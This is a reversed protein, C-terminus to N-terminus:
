PACGPLRAESCVGSFRQDCAACIAERLGAAEGPPLPLADVQSLMASWWMDWTFRLRGAAVSELHIRDGLPALARNVLPMIQVRARETDLDVAEWLSRALITGLCYYNFDPEAFDPRTTGCHRQLRASGGADRLDEQTTESAFDGELDRFAAHSEYAGVLSLSMFAPDRTFALASLDALGEDLAKLRKGDLSLLEDDAVWARWTAFAAGSFVRHFFVRHHFEHAVVGPNMAFPVGEHAFVVRLALWADAPAIYAANDASLLPLPWGGTRTLEAFYGVWGRVTTASSDDGVVDRHFAWARELAHFTTMVQLTDFDDAVLRGEEWRLALALEQGRDRQGVDFLRDPTLEEDGLALRLADTDIRGGGRVAFLSGDGIRLDTPTELTVTALRPEPRQGEPVIFVEAALPGVLPGEEFACGAWAQAGLLWLRGFVHVM